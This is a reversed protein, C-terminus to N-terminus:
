LHYFTLGFVSKEAYLGGAKYVDILDDLSETIRIYKKQAKTKEGEIILNIEADDNATM